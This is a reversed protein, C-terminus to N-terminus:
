GCTGYYLRGVVCARGDPLTCIGDIEDLGPEGSEAVAVEGGLWACYRAAQTLYGTTRRGGNGCAGSQLAELSCGRNEEFWCMNAPASSGLTIVEGSLAGYDQCAADLTQQTAGAPGALTLSAALAAAMAAIRKM